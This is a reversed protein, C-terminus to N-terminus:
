PLSRAGVVHQLNQAPRNLLVLIRPNARVRQPYRRFAGCRAVRASLQWEHSQTLGRSSSAGLANNKKDSTTQRL